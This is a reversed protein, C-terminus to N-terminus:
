LKIIQRSFSFILESIKSLFILVKYSTISVRWSSLDRFINGCEAIIIDEVTGNEITQSELPNIAGDIPQSVKM